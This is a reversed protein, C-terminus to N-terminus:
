GEWEGYFVYVTVTVITEQEIASIVEIRKQRYLTGNRKQDYPYVKPKGYRGHKADMPVGTKIVDHIEDESAGREHARKLTHPDIQVDM